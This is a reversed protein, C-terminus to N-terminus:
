QQCYGSRYYHWATLCINHEDQSTIKISTQLSFKNTTLCNM